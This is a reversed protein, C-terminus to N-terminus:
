EKAAAPTKAEAEEDEDEEAAHALKWARVREFENYHAKRKDAFKPDKVIKKGEADRDAFSASPSAAAASEDDSSDWESKAARAPSAATATAAAADAKVGQLKVELEKWEIPEKGSLSLAPSVAGKGAAAVEADEEAAYYHYPTNPEEIKMRTGRLLDHEAITEEDWKVHQPPKAESM